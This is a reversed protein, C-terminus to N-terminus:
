LALRYVILDVGPVPSWDREPVRVFGSREYMRHATTMWRDSSLVVAAYGDRRARDVVADLLTRGISRGRVAPDVALMRFEAEGDGAVERQGSGSGAWTVTGVVRGDLEAVWVEADAVRAATDRLATWYPEDPAMGSPGYARVLLRGVAEHDEPLAPRLLPDLPVPPVTGRFFNSLSKVLTFGVKSM